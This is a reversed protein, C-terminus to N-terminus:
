VLCRSIIYTDRSRPYYALRGVQSICAKVRRDVAAIYLAHGGSYSSGWIGIKEADIEPRSQAYTIADQYDSIQISPIIEQRPQGTAVDSAGFGRNDYVLVAIQLKSVFREAFKDLAMEKLATFGHVMVLCPLKEEANKGTVSPIYLWGRLTVGDGTKFDIDQRSM